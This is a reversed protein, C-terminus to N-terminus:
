REVGRIETQPDPKFINSSDPLFFAAFHEACTSRIQKQVPKEFNCKALDSYVADKASACWKIHPFAPTHGVTWYTSSGSNPVVMSTPCSPLHRRECRGFRRRRELGYPPTRSSLTRARWRRSTTVRRRPLLVPQSPITRM